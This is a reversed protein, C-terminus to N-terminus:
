FEGSEAVLHSTEPNNRYNSIELLDAPSSQLTLSAGHSRFAFVRVKLRSGTSKQTTYM